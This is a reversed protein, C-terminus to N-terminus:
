AVTQKCQFDVIRVVVFYKEVEALFAFLSKSTGAACRDIPRQPSIALSVVPQPRDEITWTTITSQLKQL